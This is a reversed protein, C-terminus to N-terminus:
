CRSLNWVRFWWPNSGIPWPTLSCRSLAASCGPVTRHPPPPGERPRLRVPHYINLFGRCTPFRYSPDIRKLGRVTLFMGIPSGFAFFIEPQYRLRPYRVSAQPAHPAPVPARAGRGRGAGQWTPPTSPIVQGISVGLCADGRTDTRGHPASERHAPRRDQLPSSRQSGWVAEGVRFPQRDVPPGLGRGRAWLGRCASATPAACGVAPPGAQVVPCSGM